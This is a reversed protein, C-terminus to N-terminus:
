DKDLVALVIGAGILTVPIVMSGTAVALVVGAGALVLAAVSLWKIERLNLWLNRM